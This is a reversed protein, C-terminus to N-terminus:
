KIIAPYVFDAYIDFSSKRLFQNYNGATVILLLDNKKDQVILQGGNGQCQAYTSTDAKIIETIIWFQNSYGVYPAILSDTFPTAIQTKITQAVASTPIVQKGRWKGNSMYVLGFKAMDRSRLRLGSAASPKGDKAKVWTYNEIGLPGFLNEELFKDVSVGTAREVIAALVQSCGGSYNFTTGPETVMPQSLVFEIADPSTNMRIESNMPNTYPITEDWELGASMNLLHQITIQRKMGTDQKSFEPFFDFLRQDLSKIKEKEMAIMIAAGVFSKSVSRMDHLSDRHHELIGVKGIGRIQDEGPFYEEFLLKNNRLILVSHINPYNNSVISDVMTKIIAEDIGAEKFTITEIADNVQDPITFYKNKEKGCSGLLLILTIIFLNQMSFTRKTM